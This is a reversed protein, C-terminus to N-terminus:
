ITKFYQNKTTKIELEESLAGHPPRCFVRPLSKSQMKAFMCAEVVMYACRRRANGENRM